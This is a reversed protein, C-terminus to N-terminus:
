QEALTGLYRDEGQGIAGLGLSVALKGHDLPWHKDVVFLQRSPQLNAQLFDIRYEFGFDRMLADESKTFDIRNRRIGLMVTDSIETNSHFKAGGRVSWSLSQADTERRGKIKWEMEVWHDPILMNHKIHQSGASLLYGVYGM